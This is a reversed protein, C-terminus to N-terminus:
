VSALVGSLRAEQDWGTERFISLSFAADGLHDLLRSLSQAVRIQEDQPLAGHMAHACALALKLVAMRVGIFTLREAANAGLGAFPFLTLSLQAQLMRRLLLDYHARAGTFKESVSVSKSAADPSLTITAAQWDLSCGLAMEIDRM